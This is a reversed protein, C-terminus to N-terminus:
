LGSAAVYSYFDPWWLHLSFRRKRTAKRTKALPILENLKEALKRSEEFELPIVIDRHRPVVIKLQGRDDVEVSKISNLAVDSPIVTQFLFGLSKRLVPNAEIVDEFEKRAGEKLDVELTDEHLKVVFKPKDITLVPEKVMLTM